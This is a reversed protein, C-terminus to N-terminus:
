LWQWPRNRSQVVHTRWRNVSQDQLRARSLRFVCHRSFDFAIVPDGGEVTWHKASVTNLAGGHSAGDTSAYVVLRWSTCADDFRCKQESPQPISRWGRKPTGSELRMVQSTSPLLSQSNENQEQAHAVSMSMLTAVTAYFVRM